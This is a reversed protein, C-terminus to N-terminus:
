ITRMGRGRWYSQMVRWTIGARGGSSRVRELRVATSHRPIQKVLSMHPITSIMDMINTSAGATGMAQAASATVPIPLNAIPRLYPATSAASLAKAPKTKATKPAQCSVSLRKPLSQPSTLASSRKQQKPIPPPSSFLMRSSTLLPVTHLRESPRAEHDDFDQGPNVTQYEVIKIIKYVGFALLTGMIPGFWYIYHYTPFSRAVVCPGFSRTPNLSGGTYFVGVMEAVFLALGIGIPALFTAKHKEAALMFITIILLSTLFMEMFVGQAISVGSGLTTSVNLDGPFMASVVAAACIGALMQAVFCLIARITTLAGILYLGLTVQLHTLM